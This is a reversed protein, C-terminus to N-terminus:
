FSAVRSLMLGLIQLQFAGRCRRKLELSLAISDTNALVADEYYGGNNQITHGFFSTGQNFYVPLTNKILHLTTHLNYYFQTRANM